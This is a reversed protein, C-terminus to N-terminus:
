RSIGLLISHEILFGFPFVFGVLGDTLPWAGIFLLYELHFYFKIFCYFYLNHFPETLILNKFYTEAKHRAQSIPAPPPKRLSFVVPFCLYTIWQEKLDSPFPEESGWDSTTLQLWKNGAKSNVEAAWWAEILQFVGQRTKMKFHWFENKYYINIKWM